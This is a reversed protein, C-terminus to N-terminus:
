NLSYKQISYISACWDMIFENNIIKSEINNKACQFHFYDIYQTIEM